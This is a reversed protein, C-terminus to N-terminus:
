KELRGEIRSLRRDISQLLEVTTRRQTNLEQWVTQKDERVEQSLSLVAAQTQTTTLSMETMWAAALAVAILVSSVPIDQLKQGFWDFLLKPM